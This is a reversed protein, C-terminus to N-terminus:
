CVSTFFIRTEIKTGVMKDKLKGCLLMRASTGMQLEDDCVWNEPDMYMYSISTDDDTAKTVDPYDCNTM